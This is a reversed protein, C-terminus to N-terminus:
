GELVQVIVPPEEAAPPEVAPEPAEEKEEAKLQVPEEELKIIKELMKKADNKEDLNKDRASRLTEAALKYAKESMEGAIYSMKVATLAKEIHITEDELEGIRKRLLAKVEQSKSKLKSMTHELKKKFEEYAYRPIENRSYLDELAKARKKAREIQRALSLAETKWEPLVVIGDPTIDVRAASITEFGLDGKAVEIATVTGDVESYFGVLKGITRGYPDRVTEGVYKEITDVQITKM